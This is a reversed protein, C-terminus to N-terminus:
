GIALLPLIGPIISLSLNILTFYFIVILKCLYIGPQIGPIQYKFGVFFALEYESKIEDYYASLPIRVRM